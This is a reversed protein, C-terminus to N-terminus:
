EFRIWDFLAETNALQAALGASGVTFAPNYAALLTRWYLGNTSFQFDISTSSNYIM